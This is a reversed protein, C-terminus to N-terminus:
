SHEYVGYYRNCHTKIRTSSYFVGGSNRRIEVNKIQCKGMKGRRKIDVLVLGKRMEIFGGESDKKQKVVDAFM